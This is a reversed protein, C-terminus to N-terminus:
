NTVSPINSVSATGEVMAQAGVIDQAVAVAADRAEAAVDEVVWAELVLGYAVSVRLTVVKVVNMASRILVELANVNEVAAVALNPQCSLEGDM